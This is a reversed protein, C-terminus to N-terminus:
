QEGGERDAFFFRHDKLPHKPQLVIWQKNGYRVCHTAYVPRDPYSCVTNTTGNGFTITYKAVHMWPGTRHMNYIGLAFTSLEDRLADGVQGTTFVQIKM